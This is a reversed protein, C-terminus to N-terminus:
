VRAIDTEPNPDWAVTVAHSNLPFTSLMALLILVCRTSKIVSLCTWKM